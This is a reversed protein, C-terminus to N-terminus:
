CGRGVAQGGCFLTPCGEGAIVITRHLCIACASLSAIAQLFYLLLHASYCRLSSSLLSMYLAATLVARLLGICVLFSSVTGICAAVTALSERDLLTWSVGMCAEGLHTDWAQFVEQRLDATTLEALRAEIM